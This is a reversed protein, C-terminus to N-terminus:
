DDWPLALTPQNAYRKMGLNLKAGCGPELQITITLANLKVAQGGDVSMSTFEHEGYGGAQVSITRPQVQSVNVLSITVGSDTLSEVLAGVDQPLGARRAIPDFYRIRCHLVTARRGPHIGGQMLQNLTQVTAPNKDLPDDALRTDPTTTDARIAAVKNRIVTFERQLSEEPFGPAKGALYSLWNSAPVRQRDAESMSWYWLEMAGHDYKDATFDYWGQDGYMHPYTM